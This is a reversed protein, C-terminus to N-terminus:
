FLYCDILAGGFYDDYHKQSFLVAMYAYAHNELRSIKSVVPYSIKIREFVHGISTTLISYFFYGNM